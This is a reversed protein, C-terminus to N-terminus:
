RVPENLRLDFGARVPDGAGGDANVPVYEWEIKAFNLSLTEMPRDDDSSGGTSVGSVILDSLTIKYYNVPKGDGGSKRCVLVASPIHQGTACALMLLPSAKDLRRTFHIDQMSVKGAGGGTGGSFTGSNSMGWSFSQIEIEARHQEDTSEGDIGDIKLFFDSAAQCPLCAALALAALARRISFHHKM